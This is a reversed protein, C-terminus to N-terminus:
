KLLLMKQTQVLGKSVFRYFYIGSSVARGADDRGDWTVRYYGAEQRDQVLARVQQGQINYITVQVDSAEPLAYRVTTSPNFPNPYNPDANFAEPVEEM